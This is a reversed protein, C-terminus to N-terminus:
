KRPKRFKYIFQDTYRRISADFVTVKHGDKPNRLAKSEGVFVFGAAEVQKRM